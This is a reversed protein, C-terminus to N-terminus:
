WKGGIAPLSKRLWRARSRVWLRSSFAPTGWSELRGPGQLYFTDLRPLGLPDDGAALTRLETTVARRYVQGAAAAVAPSTDGYPYAFDEPRRGLERHIAEAGGALEDALAVPDLQSLHPHTLTHAGIRAGQEALRGLAIWDLLPLTPVRPDNQGRWANTAGVHGPVVFLTAPLSYERLRPWAVDAFNGFGDDFTLAVADVADSLRGIEELSVVRVRGSALWEVHRRFTAPAVSIPSGSDDISHYTLIARM